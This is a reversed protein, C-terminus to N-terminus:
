MWYQTAFFESANLGRRTHWVIILEYHPQCAVWDMENYRLNQVIYPTMYFLFLFFCTHYYDAADVWPPTVCCSCFVLNFMDYVCILFFLAIAAGGFFHLLLLWASFFSHPMKIVQIHYYSLPNKQWKIQTRKNLFFFNNEM